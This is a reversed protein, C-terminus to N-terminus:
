RSGRSSKSASRCAEGGNASNQACASAPMTCCESPCSRWFKLWRTTSCRVSSSGSRLTTRRLGTNQSVPVGIRVARSVIRRSRMLLMGTTSAACRGTPMKVWVSRSSRTTSSPTSRAVGIEATIVCPGPAISSSAVACSASACIACSPNWWSITVRSPRSTPTTDSRSRNASCRTVM